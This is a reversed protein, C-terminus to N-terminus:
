NVRTHLIVGRVEIIHWKDQLDTRGERTTHLAYWEAM